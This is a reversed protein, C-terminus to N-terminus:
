DDGDKKQQTASPHQTDGDSKQKAADRTEKMGPADPDFYQDGREYAAMEDRVPFFASYRARMEDKPITRFDQQSKIAHVDSLLVLDSPDRNLLETYAPDNQPLLNKPVMTNDEEETSAHPNKAAVEPQDPNTPLSSAVDSGSQKAKGKDDQEGSTLLPCQNKDDDILCNTLKQYEIPSQPEVDILRHGLEASMAMAAMHAEYQETFASTALTVAQLPSPTRTANDVPAREWIELISPFPGRALRGATQLDQIPQDCPDKAFGLSDYTAWQIQYEYFRSADAIDKFVVHNLGSFDRWVDEFFTKPNPHDRHFELGYGSLFGKEMYHETAWPNVRFVVSRSYGREIDEQIKLDLPYSHSKVLEVRVGHGFVTVANKKMFEAYGKAHGCQAFNVIVTFGLPTTATKVSIIPGGRVKSMIKRIPTGPGLGVITIMRSEPSPLSHNEPAFRIGYTFMFPPTESVSGQCHGGQKLHLSIAKEREEDNAFIKDVHDSSSPVLFSRSEPVIPDPYRIGELNLDDDIRVKETRVSNM